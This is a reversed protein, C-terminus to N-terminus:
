KKKASGQAASVKSKAKEKTTKEKAAAKKHKPGKRNELDQKVLDNFTVPNKGSENQKAIDLKLSDLKECIKEWMMGSLGNANNPLISQERAIVSLSELMAPTVEGPMNERRFQECYFRDMETPRKPDTLMGNVKDLHDQFQKDDGCTLMVALNQMAYLDNEREGQAGPKRGFLESLNAAKEQAAEEPTKEEQYYLSNLYQHVELVANLRDKGYWGKPGDAKNDLYREVVANLADLRGPDPKIGEGLKSLAEVERRITRYEASGKLLAPDADKLLKKLREWQSKESREAEREAHVTQLFKHTVGTQKGNKDLTEQGNQDQWAERAAERVYAEFRNTLKRNQQRYKEIIEPNAHLQKQVDEKWINLSDQLEGITLNERQLEGSLQNLQTKLADSNNLFGDVAKWEDDNLKKSSKLKAKYAALIDRGIEARENQTMESLSKFRRKANQLLEKNIRRFSVQNHEDFEAIGITRIRQGKSGSILEDLTIVEESNVKGAHEQQDYHHITWQNNEKKLDTITWTHGGSAVYLMTGPKGAIQKLKEDLYNQFDNESNLAWLEERSFDGNEKLPESTITDFLREPDSGNLSCKYLENAYQESLKAEACHDTVGEAFYKDDYSGVGAGSFVFAKEMLQVWAAANPNDGIATKDVVVHYPLKTIKNRGEEKKRYFHFTVTGDPNESMLNRIREPHNRVMARLPGLLFCHGDRYQRVDTEDLRGETFIGNEGVTKMVGDKLHPNYKVFFHDKTLLDNKRLFADPFYYMNEDSYIHDGEINALKEKGYRDKIWEKIQRVADEKIDAYRPDADIELTIKQDPNSNWHGELQKKLEKSIEDPSIRSTIAVHIQRSEPM